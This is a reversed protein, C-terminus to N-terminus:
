AGHAQARRTLSAQAVCFNFSFRRWGGIGQPDEAPGHYEADSVCARAREESEESALGGKVGWGSGVGDGVRGGGSGGGTGPPAFTGCLSSHIVSVALVRRTKPSFFHANTAM